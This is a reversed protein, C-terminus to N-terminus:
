TQTKGSHSGATNMESLRQAGSGRLSYLITWGIAGVLLAGAMVILLPPLLMFTQAPHLPGVDTHSPAISEQISRAKDIALLVAALIVVMLTLTAKPFRFETRMTLRRTFMPTFMAGRHYGTLIRLHELVAGHLLGNVERIGFGVRVMFNKRSLDRQAELFVTMMEEGYQLRYNHPYLRLLSGYLARM